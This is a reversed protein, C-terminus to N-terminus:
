AQKVLIHQLIQELTISELKRIIIIIRAYYQYYNCLLKFLSHYQTLLIKTEVQMIIGNQIPNHVAKVCYVLIKPEISM